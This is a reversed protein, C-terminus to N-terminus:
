ATTWPMGGTLDAPVGEATRGGAGDQGACAALAGAARSWSRGLRRLGAESLLAPDRSWDLTLRPGLATDVARADVEVPHTRVGEPAHGDGTDAWDAPHEAPAPVRGRYTFLLPPEALGALVGATRENLHRLLGHGIGHEPAERVQEKVRKLVTAADLTGPRAGPGTRGPDLRLPHVSTFWGVTRSLDVGPALGCERGHRELDVLVAAPRGRWDAVALVLVTLLVETVDARFVVPATTLLAASTEASLTTRLTGPGGPEEPRGPLLPAAPARVREWLPLETVRAPDHAARALLAAWSRFSTRVPPLAPDAGASVAECAAALDELLIDWSASDVCLQHAALFLRGPLRPGVDFWVAQLVAGSHPDLRGTAAACQERVIVASVQDRPGPLRVTRLLDAAPVAGSSRVHLTLPDDRDLCIRLAGHHDLVAQLATTLETATLAAPTWVMATQCLPGALAGRDAFQRMVPTFPAPGEGDDHGAPTRGDADVPPAVVVRGGNLLPAWVERTFADATHSAHFLTRGGAIGDGCPDLALAAVNGHTVLVGKPTGTPGSAYRVYLGSEPTVEVPPPDAPFNRRAEAEEPGTLVLVPGSDELLFRVREVPYAPDVPVAVAGAKAIGLLVVVLEASRGLLVAIRDGATVGRAHLYWAFRNARDDLEGYTWSGDAAEVAVEGAHRGAVREFCRPVTGNRPGERGPVARAPEDEGLVAVQGPRIGPDAAVQDLVRLLRTVLADATARDFLDTAFELYCDLGAPAGSGDRREWMLVSLDFKSTSMEVPILRSELGPADFHTEPANQLAFTVQFLPHRAPSRVPNLVEVLHEFPLDQHAYAALDTERVRAVLETFAPDGGADTRLVLTNLFHGVLDDAAEDTRGAVPTGLPIDEGAGLRSLLVVVAAQAVMFLTADCARAIESLRRHTVADVSFPLFAGRHTAVPPRPRDYPLELHEPLGALERSWFAAQKGFLDDAADRALITRQWLTFDAYQVPLPAWDPARGEARAAYATSLDRALVGMSWGDAAIHHVVILLVHDEPTVAFLTARWPLESDIRFGQGVEDALAQAVDDAGIGVRALHATVADADVVIQRATGRDDPYRTRLTEHRAVVDAWASELATVDLSGTLRIALPINHTANPGELSHVFWMRQQGFSLPMPDPRVAPVLAPRVAGFGDLRGALGAVTPADFLARVPVEAGLAGKIRSALRTALLSDGGLDFFRDDIGVRELRLVDAFLRCLIQERPTRPARGSVAAAHDPAPLAARDVKGNATLPLADLVVTASPLMYEPLRDAAFERVGAADGVVYAVLRKDGPGAERVAVAAQEVGPCRGLVAEVEAPEIRFGRVKVQDDARGSFVLQGDRDWRVVDGTRYMRGGGYPCAVFREATAAARGLYGRAVGRGAVYLEGAVGAPVPRLFADLVFVRVDDRPRGIPLVAPAETGPAITHTTACLTTETPGYLHHVTAGPCVEAVRAVAEAPVVDGGTLVHRLGAFCEPTEQALVRFLGATVHVATLAHEEVLAALTWGDLDVPPAVVVCGGNLLPVWLELTSADFAHPAHFLVRGSGIDGWCSDRALGAVGGHTAVVGKPVGMSGSTYMVYLGSEPSADVPVPVEPYEGLAAEWAEKDSVVLAPAADELLFRVREAPYATDVPVSAAGAKAIGLLVVVLEVSRPLTVGVLEGPAVGRDRLYHAFQNARADLEGYTLCADDTLVAAEGRSRLVTEDFLDLVTRDGAGARGTNVGTVLREREGPALLDVEGLRLEPDDAVQGLVSLLRAVLTRAGDQDFLDTAYELYGDVGNGGAREGLGFALDFAVAAPAVPVPTAALGPLDWEPHPEDERVLLVQFLPHRDASRAPNLAEVVHEFPLDQHAYAALDADRARAVLETFSPNGGADTRLVLTNLFFGVVGDLSEDARGTVPAGLPIDDGAGLRSLLLVVAAQAVTFLTTDCERAIERLRRHLRADVTFPLVAGRHSATAPRPRDTPLGIRDPLGALAETWHALQEDLLGNRRDLLERQWLTFDAYQVPLPAWGPARGEARAAYAASLDRALIGTSRGDAVIHHVTVLLVRERASLEFLTARRPPATDLAFGRAAYEALGADLAVETTPVTGIGAGADALAQQGELIVQHPVGDREPFVTRLPEHRAIVDAWAARLAPVDLDGTLRVAVAMNYAGGADAMRHAFWMRRQGFSLPVVDPREAAVVPPRGAGLEGLREALGAVTPSEFLAPVTIEVGLATRARSALRLALLSDGGLDFFRDDVGVRELGLVGAFLRCLTRERPTRPARGSVAAAHDPAPLAARDVKGNATLPLADLVVTASPLMYEPLRDAAFERVGVADGVVYAVLRKDGPRDERVAVVAQDVGPARGLVAAVEAPEVRFGRIKVQDDARRLFILRGDRGRRVVDGTRYMRGGGYPCAVFREATAAARGLYGRAVGQGAVYLEGAAGEPVPRLLGDLVYVRVGDRPGGIPLVAPVEAGPDLAFATACLTTETPGYLHHVTAGPCAAAVRAVAEAPVVDGGTLVHRLGAFCEPTEQALVRFLGATVHVATLAHEDVLAALTRGDLDVPPAVVVCGGNLLPVWLEFTSADFAHPAHFLVRGSGIDGWCSDRALGAVGGHTAVVGKPVGTSGSTYMVYLESEPVPEVPVPAAPFGGLAAERVEAEGVVLVPASDELLFAVREVPYLPDVPVAPAGAKALGLLVVVLEASRALMIGVREGPVVGRARLYRAFRNARLDLEGYTLTDAGAVVAPAHPLRAAVAEFLEPVTAAPAAERGTNVGALLREREGPLLVDVENVPLAPDATVRALVATLRAALATATDRDFLEASHWLGGDIGLPRGDGDYRESLNLYLDFLGFSLDDRAAAIGVPEPVAALGPFDWASGPPDEMVLLVQFLPHRALSRAPNLEAVLHEFPLDQHAEAALDTTRARRVLDAFAPNGTLDTRLVLTNAVFGVLGELAADTRGDVPTGVPIDDGAGLRSLLVALAARVVTFPTADCNRATELLARHTRPPIRVPVSGGEHRPKAPRPRDYPLELEAPLGALAQKWYALQRGYPSESDQASGLREQQGRAFEPYTVPLPPWDPERGRSRAAYARSLDRALVRLSHGDVAIHHVVLMLVHEHPSLAYVTARCPPEARLDFATGADRALVGALEEEAVSRYGLGTRRTDLVRQSPQGDVEAFVTRLVEHREVVDGWASELAPRRLEGTLRVAAAMTYAAGANELRNVFWMRQQGSSLPLM